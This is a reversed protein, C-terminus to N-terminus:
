AGMLVPHSRQTMRRLSKIQSLAMAQDWSDNDNLFAIYEGDLKSLLYNRIEAMSFAQNIKLYDVEPYISVDEQLGLSHMSDQENADVVVVRIPTYVQAMVSELTRLFRLSTNMKAIIVVNLLANSM